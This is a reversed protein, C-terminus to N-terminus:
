YVRAGIRADPHMALPRQRFVVRVDAGYTQKVQSLSENVRSCFPCQFDSFEVITVLPNEAGTYPDQDGYTVRFREGQVKATLSDDVQEMTIIKSAGAPAAAEATEDAKKGGRNGTCGTTSITAVALASVVLFPLSTRTM